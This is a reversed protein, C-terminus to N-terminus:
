EFRVRKAPRVHIPADGQPPSWVTHVPWSTLCPVADRRCGVHPWGTAEHPSQKSAPLDLRACKQCSHQVTVVVATCSMFSIIIVLGVKAIVGEAEEIDDAAADMHACVQMSTLCPHRNFARHLPFPILCLFCAQHTVCVCANGSAYLCLCACILCFLLQMLYVAALLGGVTNILADSREVLWAGGYLGCGPANYTECNIHIQVVDEWFADRSTYRFHYHNTTPQIM